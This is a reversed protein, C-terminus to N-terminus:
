RREISSNSKVTLLAEGGLCYLFTNAGLLSLSKGGKRGRPEEQFTFTKDAVGPFGPATVSPKTTYNHPSCLNRPWYLVLKTSLTLQM